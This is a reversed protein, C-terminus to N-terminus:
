TSGLILVINLINYHCNCDLVGLMLYQIAEQMHVTCLEYIPLSQILLCLKAKVFPLNQIDDIAFPYFRNLLNVEQEDKLGFIEAEKLLRNYWEAPKLNDDTYDKNVKIGVQRVSTVDVEFLHLPKLARFKHEFINDEQSEIQRLKDIVNGAAKTRINDFDKGVIDKISRVRSNHRSKRRRMQNMRTVGTSKFEKSNKENAAVQQWLTMNQDAPQSSALINQPLHHLIGTRRRRFIHRVSQAFSSGGAGGRTSSDQAGAMLNPPYASRGELLDDWTMEPAKAPPSEKLRHANKDELKALKRAFFTTRSDTRSGEGGTGGRFLYSVSEHFDSPRNHPSPHHDGDMRSELADTSSRHPYGGRSNSPNCTLLRQNRIIRGRQDLPVTHKLNKLFDKSLPNKTRLDRSRLQYLYCLLTHLCNLKTSFNRVNRERIGRQNLMDEHSVEQPITDMAVEGEECQSDSRESVRMKSLIQRLRTPSICQEPQNMQERLLEMAKAEAEQRRCEKYPLGAQLVTMRKKNVELKDRIEGMGGTSLVPHPEKTKKGSKVEQSKPVEEITVEKRTATKNWQKKLAIKREETNLTKFVLEKVDLGVDGVTEYPVHAPTYFGCKMQGVHRSYKTKWHNPGKLPKYYRDTRIQVKNERHVKRKPQKFNQRLQKVIEAPLQQQTHVHVAVDALKLM